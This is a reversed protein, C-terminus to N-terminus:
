LDAEIHILTRTLDDIVIATHVREQGGNILSLDLAQFRAKLDAWANAPLNTAPQSLEEAYRRARVMKDAERLLQELNRRLPDGDPLGRVKLQISELQILFSARLTNTESNVFDSKTSSFWSKFFGPM